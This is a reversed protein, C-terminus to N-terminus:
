FKIQGRLIGNPFSKSKLYVCYKGARLDEIKMQQKDIIFNGYYTSKTRRQLNSVGNFNFLQFTSSPFTQGPLAASIGFQTASDTPVALDYDIQYVLQNTNANYGYKFVATATTTVAPVMDAGTLTNSGNIVGENDDKYCSTLVIAALMIILINKM